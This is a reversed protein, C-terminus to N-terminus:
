KEKQYLFCKYDYIAKIWLIEFVKLARKYGDDDLRENELATKNSRISAWRQSDNTKVWEFFEPSSWPRFREKRQRLAEERFDSKTVVM